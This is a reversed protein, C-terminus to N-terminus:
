WCPLIRCPALFIKTSSLQGRSDVRQEFFTIRLVRFTAAFRLFRRRQEAKAGGQARYVATTLFVVKVGLHMVFSMGWILAILLFARILM